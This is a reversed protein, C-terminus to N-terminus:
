RPAVVERLNAIDRMPADGFHKKYDRSFHSPDDYGVRYAASAADLEESLMLRRAEQLRLQKQFQLPSMDTVTKFHHHLRTSSMGLEQALNEIRLPRDFDQRLKELAQAIRQTNGAPACLQRLRHGEPGILLRYVIERKVQPVLISAEQPRTLLRVLRTAADFLDTDCRSVTMAKANEPPEGLSVGAEMMVSNVLAPDLDIRVGLYPATMITSRAPVDITVLLYHNTDYHYRAEGVAVEKAGRAIFCVAPKAEGFVHEADRSLKGLAIGPVPEIWGDNPLAAEILDAMEQRNAQDRQLSNTNNSLM